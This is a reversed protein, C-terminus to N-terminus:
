CGVWHQILISIYIKPISPAKLYIRYAVRIVRRRWAVIDRNPNIKIDVTKYTRGNKPDIHRSGVLLQYDEMPREM